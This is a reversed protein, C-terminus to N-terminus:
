RKCECKVAMKLPEDVRRRDLPGISRAIQTAVITIGTELIDCLWGARHSQLFQFSHHFRHHFRVGAGAQFAVEVVPVVQPV